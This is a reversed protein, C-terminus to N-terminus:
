QTSQSLWKFLEEAIKAHGKINPHSVNPVIYESKEFLEVLSYLTDCTSIGRKDLEMTPVDLIEVLTKSYLLESDIMHFQPVTEWNSVFYCPTNYKKCIEQVLLINKIRNFDDLEDSQIYKYYNVSQPTKSRPHLEETGSQTLRWSRSKGTLCFLVVYETQRRQNFWGPGSWPWSPKNYNKFFTLFQFVAHDISTAPCAQNLTTMNLLTGLQFPFADMPNSLEAGAPWSDGFVVLTKGTVSQQQGMQYQEM